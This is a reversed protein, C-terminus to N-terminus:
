VRATAREAAYLTRLDVANAMARYGADSPHLHDGSDYEPRLRTHRHPDRLAKDFDVVDDYVGGGRITRNVAQRVADLRQNYRGNGGFPPLTGGIVRLGHAHARFVIGRLGATIAVPDTQQPNKLIDNIGLLVLVASVGSQDLVDRGLRVLAGANAGRAGSDLLVRNGGIGANLVGMPHNGSQPSGQLRAALFDPWRHNAGVTSTSGETISDGLTVVAGAARTTWVDVGTVYRWYPSQGEFATGAATSTREGVATYSTQRAMPHITVPGSLSTSYTSVLLDSLTPVRLRAADSDVSGGAPITVTRRASFTLARLSGPVAEAGGGAAALAVTAHEITLPKTGYLNSLRVRAASGGVSAHVVNRITLGPYGNSTGPEGSVPSTAWTGVWTGSSARDVSSRPFPVDGHGASRNPSIGSGGVGEYAVAAVAVLLATLVTLLAWGTRRTVRQMVGMIGHHSGSAASM